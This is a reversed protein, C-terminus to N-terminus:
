YEYKLLAVAGGTLTPSSTAQAGTVRIKRISMADCSITFDGNRGDINTHRLIGSEFEIYGNQRDLGTDAPQSGFSLTTGYELQQEWGDGPLSRIAAVLVDANDLFELTVTVDDGTAASSRSCYLRLRNLRPLSFTQSLLGTDAFGGPNNAYAFLGTSIFEGFHDAWDAHGTNSPDYAPNVSGTGSNAFVSVLYSESSSLATFMPAILGPGM